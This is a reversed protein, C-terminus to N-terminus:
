HGRWKTTKMMMSIQSLKVKSRCERYGVISQSVHPSSSLEPPNVTRPRRVVSSGLTSPCKSFAQRESRGTAFASCSFRFAEPLADLM